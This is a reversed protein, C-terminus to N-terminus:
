LQMGGRWHAQAAAYCMGVAGTSAISQPLGLQPIEAPGDIFDDDSYDEVFPESLVRERAKMIEQFERRLRRITDNAQSEFTTAVVIKHPSLIAAVAMLAQASYYARLDFNEDDSNKELRRRRLMAPISGLSNLSRSYFDWSRGKKQDSGLEALADDPRLRVHMLGIEPHNKSIVLKKGTVIGAGIGESLLMIVMTKSDPWNRAYAEGIAYANSDANAHFTINDERRGMAELVIAAVDKSRFPLDARGTVTRFSFTKDPHPEFPGNTAIGVSSLTPCVIALKGALERLKREADDVDQPKYEVKAYARFFLRPENNQDPIATAVLFMACTREVYVGAVLTEQM